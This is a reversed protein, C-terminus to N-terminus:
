NRRKRISSVSELVVVGANRAKLRLNIDNTILCAEPHKQVMALIVDDVTEYGEAWNEFRYKLSHLTTGNFTEVYFKGQGFNKDFFEIM